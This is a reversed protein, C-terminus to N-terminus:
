VSSFPPFTVLYYRLRERGELLPECGLWALFDLLALSFLLAVVMM